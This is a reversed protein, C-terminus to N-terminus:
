QNCSLFARPMISPCLSPLSYTLWPVPHQRWKIVNGQTWWQWTFESEAESSKSNRMLLYGALDFFAEKTTTHGAWFVSDQENTYSTTQPIHIYIYIYALTIQFVNASAELHIRYCAKNTKATYSIHTTPKHTHTHTYLLETGSLCQVLKIYFLPKFHESSSWM